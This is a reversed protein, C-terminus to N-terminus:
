FFDLFVNFIRKLFLEFFIDHVIIPNSRKIYISGWAFLVVFHCSKKEDIISRLYAMFCKNQMQLDRRVWAQM